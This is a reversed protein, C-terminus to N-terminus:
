CHGTAAHPNTFLDSEDEHEYQRTKLCVFDKEILLLLSDSGPLNQTGQIAVDDSGCWRQMELIPIVVRIVNDAYIASVHEADPRSELRYILMSDGAFHTACEIAQGSWLLMVESRTLRLRLSSGRLRIKM